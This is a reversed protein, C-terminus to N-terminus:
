SSATGLRVLQRFAHPTFVRLPTSDSSSGSQDDPLTAVPIRHTAITWDIWDILQEAGGLPGQTGFFTNIEALKICFEDETIENDYKRQTDTNDKDIDVFLADIMQALSWTLGNTHTHARANRTM